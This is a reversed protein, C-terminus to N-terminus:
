EDVHGVNRTLSEANIPEFSYYLAGNFQRLAEIVICYEVLKHIPTAAARESLIHQKDTESERLGESLWAGVFVYRLVYGSERQVCM